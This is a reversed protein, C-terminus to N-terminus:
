VDISAFRDPVSPPPETVSAALRKRLQAAVIPRGVLVRGRTSLGVFLPGPASGRAVLWRDLHDGLADPVKVKGVRTAGPRWAELPLALIRPLTLGVARLARIADDRVHGTPQFSRV